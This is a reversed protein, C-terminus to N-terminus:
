TLYLGVKIAKLFTWGYLLSGLFTKAEGDSSISFPLLGDTLSVKPILFFLCFASGCKFLQALYGM